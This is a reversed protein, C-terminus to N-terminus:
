VISLLYLFFSFSRITFQEAKVAQFSAVTTITREKKINYNYHKKMQFDSIVCPCFNVQMSTLEIINTADRTLIGLRYM